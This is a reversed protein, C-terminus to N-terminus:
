CKVSNNAVTDLWTKAQGMSIDIFNGGCYTNNAVVNYVPVCPHDKFIGVLQPYHTSWPPSQYHVSQLQQDFM